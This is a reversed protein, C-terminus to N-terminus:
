NFLFIFLVGNRAELRIMLYDNFIDVGGTCPSSLWFAFNIFFFLNFSISFFICFDSLISSTGHAAYKKLSLQFSFQESM